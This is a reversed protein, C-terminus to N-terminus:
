RAAGHADAKRAIADKEKRLLAELGLIDGCIRRGLADRESM